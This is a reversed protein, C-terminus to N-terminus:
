SPVGERRGTPRFHSPSLAKRLRPSLGYRGPRNM